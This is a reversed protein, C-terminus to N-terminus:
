ITSYYRVPELEGKRPSVGNASEQKKAPSVSPDDTAKRKSPLTVEFEGRDVLSRSMVCRSIWVARVIVLERSAACASIFKSEDVFKRIQCPEVAESVIVLLPSCTSANRPSTTQDLVRGGHGVFNKRLVEIRKQVLGTPLFTADMGLFCSDMFVRHM